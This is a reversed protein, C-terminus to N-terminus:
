TTMATADSAKIEVPTEVYRIVSEVHKWRGKAMIYEYSRGALALAQAGGVRFSHLGYLKKNRGIMKRMVTLMTRYRMGPFLPGDRGPKQNKIYRAMCGVPCYGGGTRGVTM